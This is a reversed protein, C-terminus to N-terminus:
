IASIEDDSMVNSRFGYQDIAALYNPMYEMYDILNLFVEDAVGASAGNPYWAGGQIIIDTVNNSAALLNFQEKALEASVAQIDLTVGTAESWGRYVSLEEYHDMDIYATLATNVSTFLSVTIDETIPFKVWKPDAPTSEEESQQPSEELAEAVDTASADAPEM